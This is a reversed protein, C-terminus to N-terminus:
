SDALLACVEQSAGTLTAHKGAAFFVDGTAPNLFLRGVELFVTGHGPVTINAIAGAVVFAGGQGSPHLEIGANVSSLSKDTIVNTLTAQGHITRVIQMTVNGDSDTHISVIGTWTIRLELPFDCGTIPISINFESTEFIPPAAFAFSSSALALLMVFGILCLRCFRVTNM